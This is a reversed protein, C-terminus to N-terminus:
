RAVPRSPQLLPLIPISQTFHNQGQLLRERLSPPTERVVRSRSGTSLRETMSPLRTPQGFKEGAPIQDAENEEPSSIDKTCSVTFLAIVALIGILKKM